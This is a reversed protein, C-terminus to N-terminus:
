DLPAIPLPPEAQRCRNWNEVLEAQHLAAWELVLSRVRGPAEGHLISIPMIAVILEDDGYVAHFHPPAHDHYFLRISIGYFRSITPM